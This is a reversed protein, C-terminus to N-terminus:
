SRLTKNSRIVRVGVIYSKGSSPDASGISMTKITKTSEVDKHSVDNTSNGM